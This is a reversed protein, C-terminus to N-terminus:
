VSESSQSKKNAAALESNYKQILAVINVDLKNLLSDKIKVPKGKQMADLAFSIDIGNNSKQLQDKIINVHQSIEAINPPYVADLIDDTEFSKYNGRPSNKGDAFDYDNSTPISLTSGKGNSSGNMLSAIQVALPTFKSKDTLSDPSHLKLTSFGLKRLKALSTFKKTM